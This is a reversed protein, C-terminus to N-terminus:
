SEGKPALLDELFYASLEARGALNSKEYIATAQTRITKDTVGRIESIERSSLGKLMLLAVEKESPSFKWVTFQEDIANSLGQIFTKSNQQWYRTEQQAQALDRTTRQLRASTKISKRMVLGYGILAIAAVVVEVAIHSLGAGEQADSLIDFVVMVAISLLIMSLFTREKASLTNSDETM